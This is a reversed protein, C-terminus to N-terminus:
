DTMRVKAAAEDFREELRAVQQHFPHLPHSEKLQSIYRNSLEAPKGLQASVTILNVLTDADNNRKTQADLLIKEAAPWDSVVMKCLALGNLLQCTSGYTECVQELFKASAHVSLKEGSAPASSSGTERRRTKELGIWAGSLLTLTHDDDIGVMQNYEQEALDVRNLRLLCDVALAHLDLQAANVTTKPLATKLLKLAEGVLGEHILVTAAVILVTTDPTTANLTETALTRLQTLVPEQASAPLRQQVNQLYTAMQNIAKLPPPTKNATEKLVIDLQGMGLHARYLLCDRELILQQKEEAKMHPSGKILAGDSIVQHFNGITLQNRIEFLAAPYTAM